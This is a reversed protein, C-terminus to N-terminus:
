CFVRSITSFNRRFRTLNDAERQMDLQQLMLLRFEEVSESLSIVKSGPLVAECTSALLRLLQVDAMIASRVNPHTVKVAITERHFKNDDKNQNDINDNEISNNNNQTVSNSDFCTDSHTVTGKLVQAVCGSGLIVPLGTSEDL